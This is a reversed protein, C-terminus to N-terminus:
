EEHLTRLLDGIWQFTTVAAAMALRRDAGSLDHSDIWARTQRWRNATEFGDGFYYRCGRDTFGYADMLFRCMFIGGMASGELVYLPGLLAVPSGNQWQNMGERIRQLTQVTQLAPITAPVVRLDDDLDAIRDRLRPQLERLPLWASGRMANDFSEQLHRWAHLQASYASLPLRQHLLAVSFPLREVADHVASTVDKLVESLPENSRSRQTASMLSLDAALQVNKM